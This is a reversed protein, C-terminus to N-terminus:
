SKVGDEEPCLDDIIKKFDAFLNDETESLIPTKYRVRLTLQHSAWDYLLPVGELGRHVYKAIVDKDDVKEEEPIQTLTNIRIDFDVPVTM